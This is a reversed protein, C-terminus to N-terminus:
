FDGGDEYFTWYSSFKFIAATLGIIIIFLIWSLASAYGMNMFQFAEEYLMMGYLYTSKVPGGNTIVLASTFTQLTNITQMILNFLIIPTIMPITIKFFTRLKGAGDVAAAEYLEGPVNKLAALFLVMSSGFQWVSLMSITYLAVDPDGLFDIPGITLYSLIKNVLGQRMFLFKWLISVAVSGGLISPLYYITRFINIGKLKMSLVMAIFLAFILKVPVSFTTYILTVKLSQYFDADTTFIKIFNKLGILEPPNIMNFDTFSYYFSMLFPYFKFLLFGIIWPLLFLYGIYDKKEYRSAKIKM